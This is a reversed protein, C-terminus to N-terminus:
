TVCHQSTVTKVGSYIKSTKARLQGGFKKMTDIDQETNINHTVNTCMQFLFISHHVMHSAHFTVLDLGLQLLAM